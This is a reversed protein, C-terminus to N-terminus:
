TRASNFRLRRAINVVSTHELIPKRVIGAAGSESVTETSFSDEIDVVIRATCQMQVFAFSDVTGYM